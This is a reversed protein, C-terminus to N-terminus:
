APRLTLPMHRVGPVMTALVREVEGAPELRPLLPILEEFLARAQLRALHAGVCIHEGFGFTLHPNPHRAIDFREADGGFVEEDRNAAGYLMVIKQGSRVTQDRIEVDRTATRVMHTVVGCWRLMEEVARPVLSPEEVLRRLQDPHHLLALTGLSSLNRVTENGAVLLLWCFSYLEHETLGVGDISAQTLVSVLDDSPRKRREDILATLYGHVEQHARPADMSAGPDLFGIMADTWSRLRPWDRHPAGLMEAITITPLESAVQDAFDLPGPELRGVTERVIERIRPELRRLRSPMFSRKILARLRRHRPPDMFVISDIQDPTVEQGEEPIMIGGASSFTEPHISMWRVDEYRSVAWWGREAHWYVPAEHRLRRYTPAPDAVYFRPDHLPVALAM